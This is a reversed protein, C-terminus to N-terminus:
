FWWFKIAQILSIVALISEIICIITMFVFTGSILFIIYEIGAFLFGALITGILGQIPHNVDEKAEIISDSIKRFIVDGKTGSDFAELGMTFLLFLSTLIAFVFFESNFDTVSFSVITRIVGVISLVSYQVVDFLTSLVLLAIFIIIVFLIWGM